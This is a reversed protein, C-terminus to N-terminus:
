NCMYWYITNNENEYGLEIGKEMDYCGNQPQELLMKSLGRFFLAEADEPESDIYKDLDTVANKFNGYVFHIGARVYYNSILSSNNSIAKDMEVLADTYLGISKLIGAYNSVAEPYYDSRKLAQNYFYKASKKDGKLDMLNGKSFYIQAINSNIKLATAFDKEAKDYQGIKKYAVARNHYPVVFEPDLKIAMDFHMIASEYDSEKMELVGLLDYYLENHYYSSDLGELLHRAELYDGKDILSVISKIEFKDLMNEKELKEEYQNMLVFSKFFPDEYKLEKSKVYNFDKIPFISKRVVRSTYIEAYPNLSLATQLDQIAEMNMNASRYMDSRLMLYKVNTPNRELVDTYHDIASLETTSIKIVNALSIGPNVDQLYAYQIFCFVIAITQLNRM